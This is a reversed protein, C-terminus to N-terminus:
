RRSRFLVDGGSVALPASGALIVFPDRSPQAALVLYIMIASLAFLGFFKGGETRLQRSEGAYDITYGRPLTRAAEDELVRLAQDLPVQPPIAGQVRVANLQQFRKLERPETTTRLTAFTSLPVLRGQPGTVYVKELQDATLRESRRVQPIVKYSRGQMSFRNVYNGGLLTSLDAGTQSLDVGLSRVKDRDFVVETQPQDFKVDTDAYMFLGSALAKQV